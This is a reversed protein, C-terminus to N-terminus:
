APKKLPVVNYDPHQTQMHRAMNTITRTCCPCVGAKTRTKHRKLAREATLRKRDAEAADEALRANTQEAAQRRRRELVLETEGRYHWKHGVPCYVTHNPKTEQLRDYLSKPFSHLIHCTPCTAEVMEILAM